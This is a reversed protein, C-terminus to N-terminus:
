PAGGGRSRLGGVAVLYPSMRPPPPPNSYYRETHVSYGSWVGHNHRPSLSRVWLTPPSYHVWTMSRLSLTFAGLTHITLLNGLDHCYASHALAWLTSPSYHVWIMSQLSFTFRGFHPHHTIYGPWQCYASHSLARLTSPSYIVWIMSQLSHAWRFYPHSYQVYIVSHWHEWFTFTFVTCLDNVTLQTHVCGFHPHQIIYGSWQGYASHSRAWVTSPSYQVWIM